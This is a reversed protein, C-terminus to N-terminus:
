RLSWRYRGALVRRTQSAEREKHKLVVGRFEGVWAGSKVGPPAQAIKYNVERKDAQRQENEDTILAGYQRNVLSRLDEHM